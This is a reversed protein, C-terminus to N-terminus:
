GGPLFGYRKLVNQGEQDMVFNVFQRAYPNNVGHKLVCIEYSIDVVQATATVLRAKKSIQADTGYVLAADTEGSEVWALAQRVTSAFVLKKQIQSYLSLKNLLEMAYQGAPVYAPDGIAIRKIADSALLSISHPETLNMGPRVVLALSNKALPYRTGALVLGCESLKELDNRSAGAFVDMPAGQEAQIRLTGGAGFTLLVKVEPHQQQFAMAIEQMAQTLSASAAVTLNVKSHAQTQPHNISFIIIVLLLSPWLKNM